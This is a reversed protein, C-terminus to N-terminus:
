LCVIALEYEYLISFFAVSTHVASNYRRLVINRLKTPTKLETSAIRLRDLRQELLPASRRCYYSRSDDTALM